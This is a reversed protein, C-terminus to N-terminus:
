QHRKAPLNALRSAAHMNSSYFISAIVFAAPEFNLGIRVPFQRGTRFCRRDPRVRRGVTHMSASVLVKEATAAPPRPSRGRDTTQHSSLYSFLYCAAVDVPWRCRGYQCVSPRVSPCFQKCPSIVTVNQRRPSCLYLDGTQDERQWWRVWLACSVTILSRLDIFSHM